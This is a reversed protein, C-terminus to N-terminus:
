QNRFAGVIDNLYNSGRGIVVGTVIFDIYPFPSSIGVLEPISVQYAIAVLVGIGLSVYRIWPRSILDDNDGAVFQILGEILTALFLLGVITTM